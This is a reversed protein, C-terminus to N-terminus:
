EQTVILRYHLTVLNSVQMLKLMPKPLASDLVTVHAASNGSDQAPLQQPRAYCLVEPSLRYQKGLAKLAAQAEDDRGEQCLHLGLKELAQLGVDQERATCGAHVSDIAATLHQEVTSLDAQNGATTRLLQALEYQVEVSNPNATAEAQLIEIAAGMHGQAKAAAARALAESPLTASEKCDSRAVKRHSKGKQKRMPKFALSAKHKRAKM